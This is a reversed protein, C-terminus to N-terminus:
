PQQRRSLRALDPAFRHQALQEPVKKLWDLHYAFHKYLFHYGEIGGQSDPELLAADAALDEGVRFGHEYITRLHSEAALAHIAVEKRALEQDAADTSTAAIAATAVEKARTLAALRQELDSMLNDLNCPRVPRASQRRTRGPM